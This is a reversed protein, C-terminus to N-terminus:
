KKFYINLLFSILLYILLVVSSSILLSTLLLGAEHQYRNVNLNYKSIKDIHFLESEDADSLQNNASGFSYVYVNVIHNYKKIFFNENKEIIIPIEKLLYEESKETVKCSINVANATLATDKKYFTLCGVKKEIEKNVSWTYEEFLTELKLARPIQMVGMSSTGFLTKNLHILNIEKKFQNELDMSLSFKYKIYATNVIYLAIISILTVIGYIYIINKKIKILIKKNLYLKM